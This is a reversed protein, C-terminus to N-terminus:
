IKSWLETQRAVGDKSEAFTLIHLRDIADLALYAADVTEGLMTHSHMLKTNEFDRLVLYYHGIGGDNLLDWDGYAMPPLCGNNQMVRILQKLDKETYTNEM